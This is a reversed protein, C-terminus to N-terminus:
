KLTNEANMGGYLVRVISVTKTDNDTVYFVNYNDIPMIRLNPWSENDYVRHREPMHNLSQIGSELRDLQDIATDPVLLTYAIYKFIEILDNKAETSIVINYKM